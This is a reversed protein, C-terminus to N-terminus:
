LSLYTSFFPSDMHIGEDQVCSPVCVCVCVCEQGERPRHFSAGHAGFMDLGPVLDKESCMMVGAFIEAYGALKASHGRESTDHLRLPLQHRQAARLEFSFPM